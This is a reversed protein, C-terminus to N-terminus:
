DDKSMMHDCYGCLPASGMENLPIANGCRTCERDARLGCCACRDEELVYSMTSCEPCEAYPEEGGDTTAVYADWELAEAVAEPVFREGDKAHGCARCVLEMSALDDPDGDPKLLDSGCADCRVRRIGRALADSQWEIREFEADCEKREAQYVQTVALLRDWTDPGLLDRPDEELEQAIFQRLIMFASALVDKLAEQSVNPYYHEVNNRIDAIKEFLKWDTNIGLGSFRERIQYTDATKKGVGVYIISGDAARRPEAKAKVLVECSGPPSARLLAEKFLLLIGAHINRVASLLRPRSAVGFDEVGAQISEIANTLLDM